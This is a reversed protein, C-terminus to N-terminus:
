KDKEEEESDEDSSAEEFEDGAALEAEEEVEDVYLVTGGCSVNLWLYSVCGNLFNRRRTFTYKGITKGLMRAQEEETLRAQGLVSVQHEKKFNKDLWDKQNCLAQLAAL